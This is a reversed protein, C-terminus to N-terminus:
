TNSESSLSLGLHKAADEIKLSGRAPKELEAKIKQYEEVTGLDHWSKSNDLFGQISQPAEQLRRLFHEVLSEITAPVTQIFSRSVFCIGTYQYATDTKGLRDRIDTVLGDQTIRVNKNPGDERV